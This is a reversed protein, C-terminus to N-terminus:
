LNKYLRRLEAGPLIGLEASLSKELTRYLRRAGASDNMKIFARMGLLVAQEQWPEIALLKKCAEVTEQFHGAEFRQQAAGLLARQYLENFRQRPFASWDAYITEPFFEGRYLSLAKEWDGRRIATEFAAFDVWQDLEDLWSGLLQIMEEEVRFYSSPFRYPLDPELARRLTSTAQHVLPRATSLPRDPWLSEIVQEITLCHNPNLILLVLLEGARRQRLSHLEIQRSGRWVELSGLTNVRLPTTPLRELAKLIEACCRALATDKHNLYAAVLPYALSREQEVLFLYGGNLIGSAANLWTSAAEPNDQQHQLAALFFVARTCDFNIGLDSLTQRANQFDKEASIFDGAQWKCRGREIWGIGQLHRYGIREVLTLADEAWALASPLDGSARAQRSFGLRVNFNLDPAGISEAISRAKAYFTLAQELEGAELALNGRTCAAYGNAISGPIAAQKLDDLLAYAQEPRNTLWYVWSMTVLPGWVLEPLGKERALRLAEQDAALSLAFQGRPMYIGVSMNHLSRILARDYGVLRSLDIAQRFYDEGAILDDTETTCSALLLLVDARVRGSSVALSNQGTLALAEQALDKAIPYHGLRFHNRGLCVLAAAIQLPDDDQRALELAQLARQTAAGVEGARELAQSEAILTEVTHSEM